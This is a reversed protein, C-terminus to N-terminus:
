RGRGLRPSPHPSPYRTMALIIACILLIILTLGGGIYLMKPAYSMTVVHEGAPVAVSRFFPEQKQIAVEKGDIYAHWGPYYTDRVILTTDLASTTKITLSTPTESIIETTGSGGGRVGGRAPPSVLEVRPKANLEKIQIAGAEDASLIAGITLNEAGEPLRARATSQSTLDLSAPWEVGYIDFQSAMMPLLLNRQLERSQVTPRSKPNTFYAGTDGGDRVSFIRSSHDLVTQPLKTITDPPTLVTKWSVFPSTTVAIIVLDIATITLLIKKGSRHSIAYPLALFSIIAIYTYPSTLSISSSRASQIISSIKIGAVTEGGGVGGQILPLIRPYYLFINGIIIGAFIVLASNRFFKKASSTNAWIADFAFGALMSMAFTTFLLWRAPASFFWLSPEIGILRFPSLSGLSLLLTVFLLVIFFTVGEGRVPLPNPHPSFAVLAKSEVRMRAKERDSPSPLLQWLYWIALMLPIVGIYSGYEIELRKGWYTNDNGYFRPFLLTPLHYLPYSHQNARVIDFGESTNRSSLRTLELTPFLQVSALLLALIAVSAATVVVGGRRGEYSPLFDDFKEGKSLPSDGGLASTPTRQFHLYVGYVLAVIMMLLQVQLQGILFPIGFLASLIAIDKAQMYKKQFLTHVALMQWPFWAVALFINLHTIHQWIFQSLVFALTTFVAAESSLKLKRAFLFTGIGAAALHLVLALPLELFIPLFRLVFLPPYFFGIQAAALVPFGFSVAPNWSPINGQLQEQRFFLELPISVDRMDGTAPFYGFLFPLLPILVVLCVISVTMGSKIRFGRLRNDPDRGAQRVPLSSPRSSSKVRVAKAEMSAM